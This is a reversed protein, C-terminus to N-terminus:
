PYLAGLFWKAPPYDHEVAASKIYRFAENFNTEFYINGMLYYYGLVLMAAADGADAQKKLKGQFHIYEPRSKYTKEIKTTPPSINPSVGILYESFFAAWQSKLFSIIESGRQFDKIWVGTGMVEHIFELVFINEAIVPKYRKRKNLHEKYVNYENFASNEVFVFIPKACKRAERYEGLTVSVNAETKSGYRNGIILIMAHCLKIEDFCSTVMSQDPKYPITDDEFAVPEFHYDDRVFNAVQERLYRLDRYTSSIFIRAKM